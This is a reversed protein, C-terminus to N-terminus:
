RIDMIVGCEKHHKKKICLQRTFHIYYMTIHTSIVLTKFATHMYFKYVNKKYMKNHLEVISTYAGLWLGYYFLPLFLYIVGYITSSHVIYLFHWMNTLFKLKNEVCIKKMKQVM